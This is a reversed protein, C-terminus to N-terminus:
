PLEYRRWEPTESGYHVEITRPGLWRIAGHVPVFSTPTAAEWAIELDPEAEGRLYAPLRESAVVHYPGFRDQLLVVRAGDPAFLDTRWDSFFLTGRPEFRYRGPDGAFRFWLAQVGYELPFPSANPDASPPEGWWEAVISGDASRREILLSAGEAAPATFPEVREVEAEGAADGLREWPTCASGLSVGAVLLAAITRHRGGLM